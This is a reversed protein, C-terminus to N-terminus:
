VVSKRDAYFMQMFGFYSSIWCVLEINFIKNWFKAWRLCHVKCKNQADRAKILTGNVSTVVNGSLHCEPFHKWYLKHALGSCLNASIFCFLQSGIARKSCFCAPESKRGNLHKRVNITEPWHDVTQEQTFSYVVKKKKKFLKGHCSKGHCKVNGM